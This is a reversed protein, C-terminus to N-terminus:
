AYYKGKKTIGIIYSTRGLNEDYVLDFGSHLFKLAKKVKVRSINSCQLM